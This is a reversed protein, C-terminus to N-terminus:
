VAERCLDTSLRYIHRCFYQCLDFLLRTTFDLRMQFTCLKEPERYERAGRLKSHRVAGRGHRLLDSCGRVRSGPVLEPPGDASRKRKPLM